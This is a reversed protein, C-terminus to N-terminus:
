GRPWIGNSRRRRKASHDIVVAEGTRLRKFQDPLILSSASAPAPGRGVEFMDRNGSIRGAVSGSPATGALRALREASAADVYHDLILYRLSPRCRQWFQRLLDGEDGQRRKLRILLPRPQTTTLRPHRAKVLRPEGRQFGSLAWAVRM